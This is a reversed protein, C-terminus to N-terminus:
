KMSDMLEDYSMKSIYHVSNECYNEYLANRVKTYLPSSSGSLLEDRIKEAETRQDSNQEVKESNKVERASAFSVEGLFSVIIGSILGLATLKKCKM